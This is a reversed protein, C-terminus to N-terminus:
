TTLPIHIIIKKKYIKNLPSRTENREGHIRHEAPFTNLVDSM